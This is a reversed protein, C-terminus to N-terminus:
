SDWTDPEEACDEEAHLHAGVGDTEPLGGDDALGADLVCEVDAQEGGDRVGARKDAHHENSAVGVSSALSAPVDDHWVDHSCDTKDEAGLGAAVRGDRHETEHESDGSDDGRIPSTRPAGVDNRPPLAAAAPMASMLQVPLRPPKKLGVM